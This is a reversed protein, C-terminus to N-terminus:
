KLYDVDVSQEELLEITRDVMGQGDFGREDALSAWNEWVTKGPGKLKEVDAEPLDIFDVGKEKLDERFTEMEKSYSENMMEVLKPAYEEDFADKLDEPISEYVDKNIILPLTGTTPHVDNVYNPAVEYYSMGISGAGTYIVADATKRQLAEYTESYPLSVPTAGWQKTLDTVLESSAAIRLKSVENASDLSDVAIIMSPDLGATGLHVLNEDIEDVAFENMVESVVDSTIEPTEFAFPLDSLTWPFLSTNETYDSPPIGIDYAGGVIDDHASAADGLSGGHYLDITIRGDTEEEVYEKWPDFANVALHHTAPAHNNMVMTISEEEDSSSESSCAMLFIVGICLIVFLNRKM